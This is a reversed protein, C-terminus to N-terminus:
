IGRTSQIERLLRDAEKRAEERPLGCQEGFFHCLQEYSMPRELDAEKVKGGWKGLIAKRVKDWSRRLLEEM